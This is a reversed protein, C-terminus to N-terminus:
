DNNAKPVLALEQIISSAGIICIGFVLILNFIKHRIGETLINQAVAFIKSLNMPIKVVKM